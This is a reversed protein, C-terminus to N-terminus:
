KAFVAGALRGEDLAEVAIVPRVGALQEKIPARDLDARGGVSALAADAEDELMEGQDRGQGDGLVNREEQGVQGRDQVV